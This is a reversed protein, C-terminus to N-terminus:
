LAIRGGRPTSGGSPAGPAGSVSENAREGFPVRYGRRAAGCQGRSPHVTAM